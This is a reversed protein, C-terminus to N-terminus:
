PLRLPAAQVRNGGFERAACQWCYLAVLLEAAGDPQVEVAEVDDAVYMSWRERPDTWERDCELCTILGNQGAVSAAAFNSESPASESPVIKNSARRNIQDFVM